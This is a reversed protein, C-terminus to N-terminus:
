KKKDLWTNLADSNQPRCVVYTGGSAVSGFDRGSKLVGKEWKYESKRYGTTGSSERTQLIAQDESLVEVDYIVIIHKDSVLCDLTRWSAPDPLQQATKKFAECAFNGWKGKHSRMTTKDCFQGTEDDVKTPTFDEYMGSGNIANWAFGVCDLGLKYFLWNYLATEAQEQAKEPDEETVALMIQQIEPDTDIAEQIAITLEAPNAKGQWAKLFEASHKNKDTGLGNLIVKSYNTSTYKKPM